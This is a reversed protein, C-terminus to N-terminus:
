AASLVHLSRVVGVLNREVPASPMSREILRRAAWLDRGPRYTPPLSKPQGPLNLASTQGFMTTGRCATASIHKSPSARPRRMAGVTSIWSGLATLKVVQQPSIRITRVLLGLKQRKRFERVRTTSVTRKAEASSGHEGFTMTDEDLSVGNGNGVGNGGSSVGNGERRLM